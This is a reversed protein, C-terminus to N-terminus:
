PRGRKGAASARQSCPAPPNLYPASYDCVKEFEPQHRLLEFARKLDEEMMASLDTSFVKVVGDTGWAAVQSGNPSFQVSYVQEAFGTFTALPQRTATDWLRVTGDRGSTAILQGDPSFEANTVGGKHRQLTALLKGTWADWLKATNDESATLLLKGDPSFTAATVDGAHFDQLTFRLKRTQADWVQATKIQVIIISRGDKSFDVQGGGFGLERPLDGELPELQAGTHTDYLFAKKDSIQVVMRKGDPSFIRTGSFYASPLKAVNKGSQADWLNVTSSLSRTLIRAGDPTFTATVIPRKDESADLTLLLKGESIDWVQATGDECAVALRGGDPSFSVNRASENIAFGKLKRGTAVDWLQATTPVIQNLTVLLRGDPSYAVHNFKDDLTALSHDAAINWLRATYDGSTTIVQKSDPAFALHTVLGTHRGELTAVPRGNDSKWLQLGQSGDTVLLKGDLSYTLVSKVGKTYPLRRARKLSADWIEISNDKVYAFSRGDPSVRGPLSEDDLYWYGENLEWKEGTKMNFAALGSGGQKELLLHSGDRSFAVSDFRSNMLEPILSPLQRGTQADWLRVSSDRRRTVILKGDPSFLALDTGRSSVNREEMRLALLEKGTHADWVRAVDDGNEELGITLIRSGDPSFMASFAAQTSPSELKLILKGTQTDLVQAGQSTPAVLRAGDPSFVRSAAAKLNSDTYIVSSRLGEDARVLPAAALPQGDSTWLRLTGDNSVTAVRKGDPSYAAAIVEGTHSRLPLSHRVSTVAANLGGIASPPPATQKALSSAVAEVGAALADFERGPIDALITASAGLESLAAREAQLREAEAVKTAAIANAKEAEAREASASALRAQEEARRREKSSVEEAQKARDRQEEALLQQEEAKQKQLREQERADYAVNLAATAKNKEREAMVKAEQAAKTQDRAARRQQFAYLTLGFMAIMLFSGVISALRLRRVLMRERALQAQAAANEASQRALARETEALKQAAVYRSRWDLIAPGLVDHFLEYREAQGPVSVKRLISVDQGRSLLTLVSQVDTEKLEAWSALAAPQQAIKSGTPTVLFRLISAAISQQSEDLKSMVLDLHRRAIERAGGLEEFTALRMVNSGSDREAEWLRTLVLQLFPTEIRTSPAVVQRSAKEQGVAELTKTEGETFHGPRVQEVINAVLAAEIEMRHAPHKENYVRLPERIAEEAAEPTLNELRLLNSLLNPIRARFRDLKSLEEERMSLMFNVGTEQRNVARAFEADFGSAGTTTSHYLFYEEFQDFILLISHRFTEACAVLLDDLPLKDFLLSVISSGLSDRKGLAKMVARLVSEPTQKTSEAVAKLVENKLLLNFTDSQWSNFYVVTVRRREKLFPIVGARLVSSKGVGSTGYLITLPAVYLNSAIIEQDNERGFFYERDEETYPQL